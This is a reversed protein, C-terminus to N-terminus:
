YFRGRLYRFYDSYQSVHRAVAEDVASPNVVTYLTTRWVLSELYLWGNEAIARTFPSPSAQYLDILRALYDDFNDALEALSTVGVAAFKAADGSFPLVDSIRPENASYTGHTLTLACAFKLFSIRCDAWRVVLESGPPEQSSRQEMTAVRFAAAGLLTLDYSSQLDQPLIPTLGRPVEFLSNASRVANQFDFAGIAELNEWGAM